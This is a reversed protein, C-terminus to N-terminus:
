RERPTGLEAVTPRRENVPVVTRLTVRGRIAGPAAARLEVAHNTLVISAVAVCSLLACVFASRM